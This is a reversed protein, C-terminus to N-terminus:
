KDQTFAHKFVESIDSVLHINGKGDVDKKFDRLDKKNGKPIIVENAGSRIAALIKEKLGGIPLVEGTLTLEGTMAVDHKVKRKTVVSLLATAMGIGASVDKPTTGEPVHMSIVIMLFVMKSRTNRRVPEFLLILQRISEQMVEGLSGTYVLEGKGPLLLAEISLLQGGAETWALGNVVGVKASKAIDLLDYPAAQLYKQLDRKQIVKM